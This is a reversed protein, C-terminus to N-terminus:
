LLWENREVYSMEGQRRPVDTPLGFDGHGGTQSIFAGSAFVRPGVILGQDIAKALTLAGGGLDRVSTFGRLLQKEAAKAAYLNLYAYDSMMALMQPISEFLLHTHADILGPMVFRGGGEIIKYDQGDDISIPETSIRTIFKGEILIHGRTVQEDKGTFINVDSILIPSPRDSTQGMLSIQLGFMVLGFLYVVKNM